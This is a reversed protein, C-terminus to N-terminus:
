MPSTFPSTVPTFHSLHYSLPSMLCTVNCQNRSLHHSLPSTRSTTHCPHRTLPSTVPTPSAHSTVHSFHHSAPSTLSPPYFHTKNEPLLIPSLCPLTYFPLSHCRLPYLVYIPHRILPNLVLAVRSPTFCSPHRTFSHLVLLSMPLPPTRPKVRSPTSYSPHRSLAHLVLPSPLSYLVLPSVPPLLILTPTM